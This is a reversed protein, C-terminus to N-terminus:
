AEKGYRTREPDIIQLVDRIAENYGKDHDNLETDSTHFKYLNSTATLKRDQEEAENAIVRLQELAAQLGEQTEQNWFREFKLATKIARIAKFQEQRM